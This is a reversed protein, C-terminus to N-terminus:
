SLSGGAFWRNMREENAEAVPELLFGSPSRVYTFSGYGEEPALQSCVLTWGRAILDNTLTPVDCWVGAHHLNRPDGSWWPTGEVGELLELRQPGQTSYCFKLPVTRQGHEPTWIRQDERAVVATWELGLSAGLEDMAQHIDPVLHGVHFMRTSYEFM